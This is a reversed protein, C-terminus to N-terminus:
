TPDGRSGTDVAHLGGAQLDASRYLHPWARLPDELDPARRTRLSVYLLATGGDAHELVIADQEDVGSGPGVQSSALVRRPKGLIMSAMSVLYVGADLLAGGGLQRDFLYHGPAKDPVFAGGGVIMQVRGLTGAQLLDRVAAVAPLFRTWMAEMAFVQRHRAEAIVFAAERANLTFPKECLVAKNGRLSALATDHHLVHPTAIYIADVAADGAVSEYDGWAHPIGYETAFTRATEVRRSGVAVLEVGADGLALLERAMTRAMHGTGIIAWRITDMTGLM